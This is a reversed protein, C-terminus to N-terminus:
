LVLGLVVCDVIRKTWKTLETKAKWSLVSSGLTFMYRTLSRRADLDAAYDSDSYGAVLCESEGGYILGMDSTGKLYRLIRKVAEWHEKGPHAMYRSMVSVAHAIGPRTCVMAYMLSGIASAYSRRSMYEIEAEMQPTCANSLRFNASSPTSVAKTTSMRFTSIMKQIYRKKKRYVCYDYPSRNFGHKMMFSDFRKYWQRPSQKLGYLSKYLRCVYDEKGEIFFGQPIPSFIENYDVGEKQTFGKAVLRAKFRTKEAELAGTKKKYIWKCGVVQSFPLTDQRRRTFGSAVLWKHSHFHTLAYAVLDDEYGYRFLTKIERRIRGTAINYEQGQELDKPNGTKSAKSGHLGRQYWSQKLIDDDRGRVRERSICLAGEMMMIADVGLARDTSSRRYWMVIEGGVDAALLFFCILDSESEM